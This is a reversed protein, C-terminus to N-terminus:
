LRIVLGNQKKSENAAELVKVTELAWKGDTLCRKSKDSCCEVFHSLEALLPQGMPVKPFVTAGDRVSSQFEGFAGSKPQYSVGKEFIVVKDVPAVDDFVIAKEDGGVVFKREKVPHEWNAYVSAFVGGPFRMNLSVIDDVAGNHSIGVCSVAEPSIGLIHRLMYIEHTALDELVSVDQRIPGLGVRRSEIYRIKGVEGRKVLDAVFNFAQNYMFIDGVMLCVNNSEALNVLEEAEGSDLTMPKEVLVNKGLSLLGKVIPYHNAVQTAVVVSGVEPDEFVARMDPVYKGELFRAHLGKPRVPDCIYKFSAGDIDEITRVFNRGWYGCGVLAFKDGAM